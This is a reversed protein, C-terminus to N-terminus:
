ADPDDEEEHPKKRSIVVVADELEAEGRERLHVILAELVGLGPWWTSGNRIISLVLDIGLFGIVVSAAWAGVGWAQGLHWVVPPLGLIILLKLFGDGFKAGSFSREPDRIAAAIGVVMDLGWAVVLGKWPGGYIPAGAAFFTWLAAGFYKVVGGNEPRIVSWLWYPTFVSRLKGRGKRRSLQRPTVPIRGDYYDRCNRM